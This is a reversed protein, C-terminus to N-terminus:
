EISMEGIEIPELDKFQFIDPEVNIPLIFVFEVSNENFGGMACEISLSGPPSINYYGSASSIALSRYSTGDNGTVQGEGTSVCVKDPNHSTIMTSVFLFVTDGVLDLSGGGASSIKETGNHLSVVEIAWEDDSAKYTIPPSTPMAETNVGCGITYFTSFAVLLVNFFIHRKKLPYKKVFVVKRNCRNFQINILLRDVRIKKEFLM